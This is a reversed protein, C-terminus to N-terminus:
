RAHIHDTHLPMFMLVTTTNANHPWKWKTGTFPLGAGSKCVCMVGGVDMGVGDCVMGGQVGQHGGSGSVGWM